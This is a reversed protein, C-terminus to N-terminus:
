VLLMELSEYYRILLIVYMKLNYGVIIHKNCCNIGWLVFKCWNWKNIVNMANCPYHYPQQYSYSQYMFCWWQSSSGVLFLLIVCDKIWTLM